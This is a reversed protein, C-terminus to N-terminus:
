IPSAENKQHKQYIPLDLFRAMLIGGILSALFGPWTVILGKLMVLLVNGPQLKAWFFWLAMGHLSLATSWIFVYQRKFATSLLHLLGVPVLFSLISEQRWFPTLSGNAISIVASALFYSVPWVVLLWLIWRIAGNVPDQTQIKESAIRMESESNRARVSLKHVVLCLILSM